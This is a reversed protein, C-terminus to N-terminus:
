RRYSCIHSQEGGLKTKRRLQQTTWTERERERERKLEIERECVSLNVGGTERQPNRSVPM